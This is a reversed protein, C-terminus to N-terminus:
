QIIIIIIKSITMAITNKYEQQSVTLICIKHSFMYSIVSNLLFLIFGINALKIDVNGGILYKLLPTITIGIGLIIFGIVRYFKGYFRIYARLQKQNNEAYPKYLSFIIATGVGLEVISLWGIINTYLSNLGLIESGLENYFVRTILLNPIFILIFTIINISSNIIAKKTRM